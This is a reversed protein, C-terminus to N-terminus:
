CRNSNLGSGSGRLIFLFQECHMEIIEDLNPLIASLETSTLLEERELPKSFVMQLVSLMRVHAHETAFLEALLFQLFFYSISDFFFCSRVGIEKSKGVSFERKDCPCKASGRTIIQLRSWLFCCNHFKNSWEWMSRVCSVTTRQVPFRRVTSSRRGRPRRKALAPCRRQPPWSGGTPLSRSSSWCAHSWRRPNLPPAPPRHGPARRFLQQREKMAPGFHMLLDVM